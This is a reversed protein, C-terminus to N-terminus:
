RKDRLNAWVSKLHRFWKIIFTPKASPKENEIFRAMKEYIQLISRIDHNERVFKKENLAVWTKANGREVDNFLPDVLPYGEPLPDTSAYAYLHQIHALVGSEATPFSFGSRKADTVGLNCFNNQESNVDGTFRFNDTEYLAQAFAVDARIGYHQAFKEYSKGLRPADPNLSQAFTDMDDATFCSQGLITLESLEKSVNTPVTVIFPEGIGMRKLEEIRKEANEKYRFVGAQVRYYTEGCIEAKRIFAEIQQQKLFSARHRADEKNKFSEAIVQYLPKQRAQNVKFKM